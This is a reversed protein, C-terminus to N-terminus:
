NNPLMLNTCIYTNLIYSSELKLEVSYLGLIQITYVTFPAGVDGNHYMDRGGRRGRPQEQTM